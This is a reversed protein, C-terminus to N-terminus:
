HCWSFTIYKKIHTHKLKQNCVYRNSHKNAHKCVCSHVCFNSPQSTAIHLVMDVIILLIRSIKHLIGKWLTLDYHFRVTGLPPSYCAKPVQGILALLKKSWTMHYHMLIDQKWSMYISIGRWIKIEWIGKSESYCKYFRLTMCHMMCVHCMNYNLVFVFVNVFRLVLYYDWM